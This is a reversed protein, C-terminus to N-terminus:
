APVPLLPWIAAWEADTMDSPYRHVRDPDDAANGYV